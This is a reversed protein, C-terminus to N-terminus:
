AILFNILALLGKQPLEILTKTDLQFESTRHVVWNLPDILKEYDDCLANFYKRMEADTIYNPLNKKYDKVISSLKNINKINDWILKEQGQINHKKSYYILAQEFASRILFSAALPLKDVLKKETFYKLENCVSSIGHSDIDEPNLKSFNIGSFFYPLNKKGGICSQQSNDKDVKDNDKSPRINKGDKQQEVIKTKNENEKTGKSEENITKDNIPNEEQVEMPHTFKYISIFPLVNQEIDSAFNYLRTIPLGEKRASEAISKSVSVILEMRYKTFTKEDNVDLGIEAKVKKNGFIRQITTFPMVTTIDFNDCYKKVSSEILYQLTKKDNRRVMFADKERASWAKVGRGKDEGSHVREMILFAEEENTVYCTVETIPEKIERAIKEAKDHTAKDLFDFNSLDSLMKIVAIRRNGEYVVYKKLEDNYVVVPQQNGLLGYTKIDEALNLMFQNGVSDFLKKLTEKENTAIEHRPNEYYNAIENININRLEGAM